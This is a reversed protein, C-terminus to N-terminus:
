AARLWEDLGLRVGERSIHRWLIDVLARYEDDTLDDRADLFLALAIRVYANLASTV